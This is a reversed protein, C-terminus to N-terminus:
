EGKPNPGYQNNGPESDLLTFVFFILGGVLPILNVFIYGGSKGTDHLRRVTMALGPIIMILAYLLFIGFGAGLLKAGASANVSEVGVCVFFLLVCYLVMVLCNAISALFYESRRSRGDFKAYKKFLSTYATILNFNEVTKVNRGPASAESQHNTGCYPCISGQEFLKGCNKCYM